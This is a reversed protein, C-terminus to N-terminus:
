HSDHVGAFLEAAKEIAHMPITHVGNFEHFDLTCKSEQLLDRLWLGTQLPLVPDIRGHSQFIKTSSLRSIGRRWQKECILCGSFLCMAAPPEALGRIATDVSLMAGQSFGGLLLRKNDVQAIEMAAEITGTLKERADDIGNPVEERVQEYHGDDIASMLRQISLMWWARGGPMGEDDLSLPAAPFVMMAAGDNPSIQLMESALGVLDDGGAGFGHCLVALSRIPTKTDAPRVIGCELAGLRQREFQYTASM